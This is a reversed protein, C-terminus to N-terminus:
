EGAVEPAPKCWGDENGHGCCTDCAWAVPGHGEYRGFCTADTSCTACLAPGEPPAKARLRRYEVLAAEASIMADRASGATGSMDADDGLDVEDGADDGVLSWAWRAGDPVDSWHHASRATMRVPVEDESPAGDIRHWMFEDPEPEWTGGYGEHGVIAGAPDYQEALLGRALAELDAAHNCALDAIVAEDAGDLVEDREDIVRATWVDVRYRDEPEMEAYATEIHEGPTAPDIVLDLYARLAALAEADDEASGAM